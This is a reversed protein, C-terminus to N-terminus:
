HAVPVGQRPSTLKILLPLVILNGALGGLMTLSVLAGFYITPVFQSTCLVTFGVILALTSFVVARGVSQHVAALADDLSAGETRARRYATLYHISSDISLGVSVAAIMAAGMNIKLGLWGMIGTVVFIPVVNPVLAISALVPSRLAAFMMVWIAVAAVAFASWQDRLISEILNALLVFFGTVEAGPNQDDPPFEERSIKRVQEIIERKTSSPQREKSRLMIRFFYQDPQEPDQGELAIELAPIKEAFHRWAAGVAITRKLSSRMRDPDGPVAALIGDVRSLVKTLGPSVSGDANTVVVEERLRDELRRIRSQDAWSPDEPGPVVVDWVGAGGLNNEVFEYSRVIPSGARFNKTFDSELELRAVGSAAAVVLVLIALGLSRPRRQVLSAAGHLLKELWHEGWARKPDPDYRGLLALGPVVLVVSVLVMLTSIAMMLGFDRVPFVKAVMLSAFGAATTACSWFVPAALLRGARALADRATDGELRAERFRVIVHIVTAIGVVTVVATLMSSVMTLELGTWVVTARTLLVALQVVVVPIIVWRLSRFSLIIVAALLATSVWALRLGDQQVYRFGDSVMVPEGALMGPELPPPLDNMVQRMREIVQQRPPATDSEPQLICVVAAIRGDASHTYGEFLQRARAAQVSAQEVISDGLPQDISIVDDVGEVSKLRASIQASRRIGSGDPHFLGDDAYVALVVENGGFTRKLQRYPEMLPDDPAFMSDISRDFELHRAPFFAVAAAVVALALLPHRWAILRDIIPQTFTPM